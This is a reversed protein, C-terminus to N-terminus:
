RDTPPPRRSAYYWCLFANSTAGVIGALWLPSSRFASDPAAAASAVMPVLFSTAMVAVVAGPSPERLATPAADALRERAILVIALLVFALGMLTVGAQWLWAPAAQEGPASPPSGGPPFRVAGWGM